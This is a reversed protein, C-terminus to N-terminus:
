KGGAATPVGFGHKAFIARGEPGALFEVYRQAEKAHESGKIVGAPVPVTVRYRTPIAITTIERKTYMACTANWVIAADLQGLKVANSLETVNQAGMTMNKEARGWVGAKTLVDKAARGIAVAKPDGLGIQMGPKALDQVTRVKKPNDTPVILVTSMTAVIKYGPSVLKRDVAQKMYFVEGPIYVDGEGSMVVDPLLCGSGKYNYEVKISTKKEFAAGAEDLAPRIGAGAHVLLKPAPQAWVAVVLLAIM